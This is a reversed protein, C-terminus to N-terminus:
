KVAEKLQKLNDKIEEETMTSSQHAIQRELYERYGKVLHKPLYETIHKLMLVVWRASGSNENSRWDM